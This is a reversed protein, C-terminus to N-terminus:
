IHTIQFNYKDSKIFSISNLERTDKNYTSISSTNGNTIRKLHNVLRTVDRDNSSNSINMNIDINGSVVFRGRELQNILSKLTNIYMKNKLLRIDQYKNKM